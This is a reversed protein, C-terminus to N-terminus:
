RGYGSAANRMLNAQYAKQRAIEDPLQVAQANGLNQMALYPNGGGYGGGYGGGGQAAMQMIMPLIAGGIGGMAMGPTGGAAYGLGAGALGGLMPNILGQNQQYFQGLQSFPQIAQNANGMFQNANSALQDFKKLRDNIARFPSSALGYAGAGALGAGAALGQATYNLGLNTTPSNLVNKIFGPTNANQALRSVGPINSLQKPMFAGGFYGLNSLTGSANDTLGMYDSGMGLAAGLGQGSMARQQVRDAIDGFKSGGLGYAARGLAAGGAARLGTKGLGYLTSGLTMNGDNDTFDSTQFGTIPNWVGTLAGTAAGRGTFIDKVTQMPKNYLNSGFQNLQRGALLAPDAVMQKAASQAQQAALQGAARAKAIDPGGKNFAERASTLLAKVEPRAYVAKRAAKQEAALAAAPNYASRAFRTIFNGANRLAPMFQSFAIKQMGENLDGAVKDGFLAIAKAVAAKIQGANMGSQILRGFFKEQFSNLGAKKMYNDLTAFAESGKKLDDDGVKYKVKGEGASSRNMAGGCSEARKNMAQQVGNIDAKVTQIPLSRALPNPRPPLSRGMPFSGHWNNNTFHQGTAPDYPM